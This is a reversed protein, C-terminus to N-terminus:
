DHLYLSANPRSTCVVIAMPFIKEKILNIIFQNNFHPFEDLGDLVFTIQFGKSHLLIQTCDKVDINILKGNHTLYKVLGEETSVEWLKPDRLFLLFLVAVQKLLKRNAWQLAIKSALTTEGIGPVGEILVCQPPGYGEKQEVPGAM